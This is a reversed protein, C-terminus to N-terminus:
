AVPLAGIEVVGNRELNNLDSGGAFEVAIGFDKLRLKVLEILLCMYESQHLVNGPGRKILRGGHFGFSISPHDDVTTIRAEFETEPKEVRFSLHYNAPGSVIMEAVRKGRDLAIDLRLLGAGQHEELDLYFDFIYDGPELKLYPGWVIACDREVTAKNSYIAFHTHRASRQASFSHPSIRNDKVREAENRTSDVPLAISLFPFRARTGIAAKLVAKVVKLLPRTDVDTRLDIALDYEDTVLARFFGVTAPVDPEEESSNRPFAEFAIIRDAVGLDRAMDANWSGVVLDITAEPFYGRLRELAPLTMIFDGLHDLKLVLIRGIRPRSELEIRTREPEFAFDARELPPVTTSGAERQLSWAPPAIRELVLAIDSEGQPEYNPSRQYDYGKDLDGLWRVRYSNPVLAEEVEALLSSPTYLRRQGPRWPSPLNIQREYLFAHPVTVVLHGGISIGGMWDRLAQRYDAIEQLKRCSVITEAPEGADAASGIWRVTRGVCFRAFLDSSLLSSMNRAHRQGGVKM